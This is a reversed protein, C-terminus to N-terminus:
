KMIKSFFKTSSQAIADVSNELQMRTKRGAVKDVTDFAFGLPGPASYNPQYSSYFPNSSDPRLPPEVISPGPMSPVPHPNPMMPAYDNHDYPNYHPQPPRYDSANPFTPMTPSVHSDHTGAPPSHPPTTYTSPPISPPQSTRPQNLPNPVGPCFYSSEIPGQAPGGYHSTHPDPTFPIAYPVSYTMQGGSTIGGLASAPRFPPHTEVPHPRLSTATLTQPRSLKAGGTHSIWDQQPHPRPAYSPQPRNEGVNWDAPPWQPPVEPPSSPLSSHGSSTSPRSQPRSQYNPRPPVAPSPNQSFIMSTPCQAPGQSSTRPPLPPAVTSPRVGPTLSMPRTPRSNQSNLDVRSVETALTNVTTQVVAPSQSHTVPVEQGPGLSSSPGASSQPSSTSPEDAELTYPPPPPEDDKHTPLKALWAQYQSVASSETSADGESNTSGSSVSPDAKEGYKPRTSWYDQLEKSPFTEHILRESRLGEGAFGCIRMYWDSPLEFGDEDLALFSFKDSEPLMRSKEVVPMLATGQDYEDWMAGYLTRIGLRKAHFIQKWFFRGGKRKIGNFAWKGESLNFGSSGPLIVSIYDIKRHGQDARRRLLDIDGKLNNEAFRNIEEDTSYRGVTWPSIADFDNLWVDLFQTNRDADNDSTRWSAPTGALLYAGGPTVERFFNAINKVVYPSHYSSEFGFGWLGIVPKGKERLYSPSDLIGKIRILHIWDRELVHQIRTPDVGTVDYMIAFVRDEKEAADRVNDGVQDRIRRLGENGAELDCQSAFRQLFCGDVQHQAMWHFHRQVTKPHRSSFVLAQEGSKLKLSPVPFLESPSYESVDPWLDTQPRGGQSLPASLWHGWGHHGPTFPEGDGPCTFSGNYGVIFKDQITSPNARKLRGREQAM